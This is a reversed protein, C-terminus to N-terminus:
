DHAHEDAFLAIQHPDQWLAAQGGYLASLIHPQYVDEPVGYGVIRHNLALVHKFRGFALALDHTTLLITIGQANLVDLSNMLDNQAAADVGAFPEDLLLIDASQALARAIFARRRQGGSLEGIQREALSDMQTQALARDVKRWHEARPRRLWGIQRTLGMMVVDRVTVPFSWDVANVQPVYGLRQRGGVVEISESPAPVLGMLAKMLSSKGAGNPGIVATMDGAMIEFSVDDLADANHYAVSLHQIRIAPIM